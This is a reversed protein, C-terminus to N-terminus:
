QFGLTFTPTENAHALVGFRKVVCRRGVGLLVRVFPGGAAFRHGSRLGGIQPRQALFCAFLKIWRKRLRVRRLSDVLQLILRTPAPIM